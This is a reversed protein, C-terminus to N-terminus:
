LPEHRACANFVVAVVLQGEPERVDVDLEMVDVLELRAIMVVDLKDGDKDGDTDGAEAECVLVRIDSTLGVAEEGFGTSDLVACRVLRIPSLTTATTAPEKMTSENTKNRRLRRIRWFGFRDGDVSVM